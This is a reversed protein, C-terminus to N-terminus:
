SRKLGAAKIIPEWRAIEDKVVTALAQPGRRSKVPVDGGVSSFRKRVEPDDLAKDLADSLKDLIPQPTGKPAFLGFWPQETFEPLGAEKTTPVDPLVANREEAAIARDRDYQSYSEGWGVVGADTEIRVFVFNKRWGSHVPLCEVRSIKM